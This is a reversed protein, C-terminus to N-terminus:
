NLWVKICTFTPPHLRSICTFCIAQNMSILVSNYIVNQLNRKNPKWSVSTEGLYSIWEHFFTNRDWVNVDWIFFFIQKYRIGMSTIRPLVLEYCRFYVIDLIWPVKEPNIHIVVLVIDFSHNTNHKSFSILDHCRVVAWWYLVGLISVM